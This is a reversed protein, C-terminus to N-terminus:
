RDIASHSASASRSRRAPVRKTISGCTRKPPWIPPCAVINKRSGHPLASSNLGEGIRPFQEGLLMRRSSLRRATLRGDVPVEAFGM